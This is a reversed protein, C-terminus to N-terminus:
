LLHVLEDSSYVFDERLEADVPGLVPLKGASTGTDAHGVANVGNLGDPVVRLKTQEVAGGRRGEAFTLLRGNVRLRDRQGALHKIRQKTRDATGELRRPGRMELVLDHRVGLPLLDGLHSSAAHGHAAVDRDGRGGGRNRCLARFTMM